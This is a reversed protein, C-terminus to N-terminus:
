WHRLVFLLMLRWCSWLSFYRDVAAIAAVDPREDRDFNMGPCGKDFFYSEMFTTGLTIAADERDIQTNLAVGIRLCFVGM